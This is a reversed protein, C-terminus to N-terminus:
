VEEEVEQPTVPKVIQFFLIILWIIVAYVAMAIITPWELASRGSVPTGVVGFFPDVFPASLSYIFLTFGSSQSAGILRLLVRFGLLIEIVALIYYLLQYTRFITKKAQYDKQPTTSVVEPVERSTTQHTETIVRQIM